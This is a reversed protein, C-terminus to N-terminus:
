RVPVSTDPEIPAPESRLQDARTDLDTNALDEIWVRLGLDDGFFYSGLLATLLVIFILALADTRHGQTPVIAEKSVPRIESYLSTISLLYFPRILVTVVGVSILAPVAIFLYFNFIFNSNEPALDSNFVFWLGAIYAGVGVFWCVLSYGMRLGIAAVPAEKLIAISDQAADTFTKGTVLAPFVGITGVKWAYYLAEEVLTRSGRKKPLRDLIARVTIWADITTFVWLRGLNRRALNICRGITSAQGSIHLNHAATMAANLLSIPYSAVTVVLFSWALLVLNILTFASKRDNEIDSRVADWLRDPIWDLIQIWILYAAAIVLWQLVAFLIIEKEKGILAAAHETARAFVTLNESSLVRPTRASAAFYDRAEDRVKNLEKREESFFM